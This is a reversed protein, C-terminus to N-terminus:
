AAASGTADGDGGASSSTSSSSASDSSPLAPPSPTTDSQERRSRLLADLWIAGPYGMLSMAAGVMYPNVVGTYAMRILLGAGLFWALRQSADKWTPLRM